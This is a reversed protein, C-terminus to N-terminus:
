KSKFIERYYDIKFDYVPRSSKVYKHKKDLYAKSKSIGVNSSGSPSYLVTLKVQRGFVSKDLTVQRNTKIEQTIKYGLIDVYFLKFANNKGFGSTFLIEKINSKKVEDLLKTNLEIPILDKDLSTPNKRECKRITDSVSIKRKKLFAFIGELTLPENLDNPFAKTLITWISTVNGYYFPLTFSKYDHPHITGVILKERDGSIPYKDIYQHTTVMNRNRNHLRKVQGGVGCIYGVGIIKVKNYRFYAL